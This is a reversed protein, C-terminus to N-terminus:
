LPRTGDSAMPNNKDPEANQSAWIKLTGSAVVSDDCIIQGEVNYFEEFPSSSNMKILLRKGAPPLSEVRFDKIGALYGRLAPKGKQKNQYGHAAAYAQAMIEMLAAAEVRGNPDIVVAESSLTTGAEAYSEEVCFLESVLRMPPRHPMYAEIDVVLSM